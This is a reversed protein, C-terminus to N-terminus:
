LGPVGTCTITYEVGCRRPIVNVAASPVNVRSTTTGASRSRPPCVSSAAPSAASLVGRNSVTGTATDAAAAASGTVPPGIPVTAAGGPGTPIGTPTGPGARRPTATVSDLLGTSIESLAVLSGLLLVVAAIRPLWRAVGPVTLAVLRGITAGLGAFALTVSPGFVFWHLAPVETIKLADVLAVDGEDLAEILNRFEPAAALTAVFVGLLLGGADARGFVPEVETGDLRRRAVLLGIAAILGLILLVFLGTTGGAWGLVVAIESMVILAPILLLGYTVARGIPRSAPAAFLYALWLLFGPFLYIRAEGVWTHWFSFEFPLSWEGNDAKSGLYGFLLLAGLLIGGTILTRRIAGPPAPPAQPDDAQPTAQPTTTAPPPGAGFATM